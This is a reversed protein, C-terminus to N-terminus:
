IDARCVNPSAPAQLVFHQWLQINLTGSAQLVRLYRQCMARDFEESYM